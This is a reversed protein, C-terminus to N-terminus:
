FFALIYTGSKQHQQWSVVQQQWKAPLQLDFGGLMSIGLFVFLLSFASIAWVNQLKSQINSGLWAMVIGAAAYTVAVGLVYALSLCFAKKSYQNQQGIIISSLIPVMPLSCPSFALLLGLGLFCLWVMIHSHGSLYEKAAMQDVLLDSKIDRSETAKNEAQGEITLLPAELLEEKVFPFTIRITKEIPAYCYGGQLCGQYKIQLNVDQRNKSKLPIAIRVVGEYVAHKDRRHALPWAISGLAGSSSNIHFKYRYLYYGPAIQWQAIVRQPKEVTASFVFAKEAPLSVSVAAQAYTALLSLLLIFIRFM